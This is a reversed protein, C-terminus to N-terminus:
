DRMGKEGNRKPAHRPTTTMERERAHPKKHRDIQLLEGREDNMKTRTSVGRKVARRWKKPSKQSM